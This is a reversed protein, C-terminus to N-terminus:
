PSLSKIIEKLQEIERHLEKQSKELKEIRNETEKFRRGVYEDLEERIINPGIQYVATGEPVRLNIGGIKKREMGPGLKIARKDEKYDEDEQAYVSNTCFIFILLFPIIRKM